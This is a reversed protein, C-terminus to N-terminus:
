RSSSLPEFDDFDFEHNMKPLYQSRGRRNRNHWRVAPDYAHANPIQSSWKQCTSGWNSKAEDGRYLAGDGTYCDTAPPPM